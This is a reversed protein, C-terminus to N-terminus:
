RGEADCSRSTPIPETRILPTLLKPLFLALFSLCVRTKRVTSRRVAREGETCGASPLGWPPADLPIGSTAMVGRRAVHHGMHHVVFRPRHPAAVCEMPSPRVSSGDAASHLSASPVGIPIHGTGGRQKRRTSDCPPNGARGTALKAATGWRAVPLVTTLPRPPACHPRTHM